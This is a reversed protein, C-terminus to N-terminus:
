APARPDLNPNLLRRGLPNANRRVGTIAVADDPDTPGENRGEGGDDQEPQGPHLGARDGRHRVVVASAQADVVGLDGRGPEIRSLFTAM